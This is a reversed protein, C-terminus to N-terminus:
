QLVFDDPSVGVEALKRGPIVPKVVDPKAAPAAPSATVPVQIPRNDKAAPQKTKQQQQDDPLKELGFLEREYNRTLFKDMSRMFEREDIKGWKIWQEVMRGMLVLKKAERKRTAKSHEAELKELAARNTKIREQRERYSMAMAATEGGAELLKQDQVGFIGSALSEV